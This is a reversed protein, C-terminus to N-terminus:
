FTPYNFPQLISNTMFIRRNWCAYGGDLPATANEPRQTARGVMKVNVIIQASPDMLELLVHRKVDLNKFYSYKKGVLLTKFSVPHSSNLHPCKCPDKGGQLATVNEVSIIAHPEM